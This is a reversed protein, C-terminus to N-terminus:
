GGVAPQALRQLLQDAVAADRQVGAQGAFTRDAFRKAHRPVGDGAGIRVQHGGAEGGGPLARAREGRHREVSAARVVVCQM